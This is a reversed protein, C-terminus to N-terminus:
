KIWNPSKLQFRANNFKYKRILTNTYERIINLACIYVVVAENLSPLPLEGYRHKIADKDSPFAMIVESPVIGGSLQNLKNLDHTNPPIIGRQRLLIKMTKEVGMFFEWLALSAGQVENNVLDLAGKELHTLVQGVLIKTNEDPYDTMLNVRITRLSEAVLMVRERSKEQEDPLANKLNPGNIIWKLPEEEPLVTNPICVWFTGDNGADQTIRTPVRIEFLAHHIQVVGRISDTDKKSFADGYRERYWHKVIKYILSFWPKDFYDEKTDDKIEVILHDVIFSAASLPRQRLPERRAALVEDIHPLQEGLTKELEDNM